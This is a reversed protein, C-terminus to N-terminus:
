SDSGVRQQGPVSAEPLLRAVEDVVASCDLRLPTVSVVRDV